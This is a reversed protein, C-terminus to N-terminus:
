KVLDENFEMFIVAGAEVAIFDSARMVVESPTKDLEVLIGTYVGEERLFVEVDEDALAIRQHSFASAVVQGEPGVEGADVAISDEKPIRLYGNAENDAFLDENGYVDETRPAVWLSVRIATPLHNEVATVVVASDLSAQIRRRADDDQFRRFIPDFEIRTDEEIQFHGQSAFRVQDIQVWHRSDIVEASEGDGIRVTPAVAVETPLLNLFETLEASALSLALSVPHDPDGRQFVESIMLSDREGYSNTGEIHLDIRSRFGVGSTLGVELAVSSFAIRDLGSPFNVARVIPSVSLVVEDLVGEIRSLLLDETEAELLLKDTASTEAFEGQVRYSIRMEIPSQPIFESGALDFPVVMSEGSALADILFAHPTGDPRKVDDLILEIQLPIATQNTAKLTLGGEAIVAHAIQIRDDAFALAETKAIAGDAPGIPVALAASVPAVRLRDGVEERHNFDATFDVSLLGEDDIKLFGTREDALDRVTTRDDAVPISIQFNTSPIQPPNVGCGTLAGVGLLAGLWRCRVATM